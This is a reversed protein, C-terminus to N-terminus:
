KKYANIIIREDIYDKFVNSYVTNEKTGFEFRFDTFFRGTYRKLKSIIIENSQLIITPQGTMCLNIEDYSKDINIWKGTKDKAQRVLHLLEFSRGLYLSSSSINQLMLLYSKFMKVSDLAGYNESFYETSSTTNITTDVFLKLTENTYKRNIFRENAQSNRIQGVKYRSGIKITDTNSGIFYIPYNSYSEEFTLFKNGTLTTDILVFENTSFIKVHNKSQMCSSISFILALNVLLRM